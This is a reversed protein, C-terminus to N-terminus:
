VLLVCIYSCSERERQGSRGRGSGEEDESEESPLAEDMERSEDYMQNMDVKVEFVANQRVRRMGKKENEGSVGVEWWPQTHKEM